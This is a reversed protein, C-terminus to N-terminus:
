VTMPRCKLGEGRLRILLKEQDFESGCEVVVQFIAGPRPVRVPRPKKEVRSALALPVGNSRLKDLLASIADKDSKGSENAAILRAEHTPEDYEVVVVEVRKVGMQRLVEARDRGSVLKGNLRNVVLPSFYDHQLSERLAAFRRSRKGVVTKPNSEHGVLDAVAWMETM